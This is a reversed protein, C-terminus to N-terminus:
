VGPPELGYRWENLLGDSSEMGIIEMVHELYLAVRDREESDEEDFLPLTSAFEKSVYDANRNQLLGGILRDLLGNLRSECRIRVVEDPAGPYLAGLDTRFKAEARFERLEALTADTVTLSQSM